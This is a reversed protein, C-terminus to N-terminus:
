WFGMGGFNGVSDLCLGETFGCKSRVRELKGRDVMTEMIFVFDPRERWCWGQLAKITLPNNIGRCNWSFIKM